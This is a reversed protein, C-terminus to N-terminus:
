LHDACRFSDPKHASTQLTLHDVTPALAHSSCELLIIFLLLLDTFHCFLIENDRWLIELACQRRQKCLFPLSTVLYLDLVDMVKPM